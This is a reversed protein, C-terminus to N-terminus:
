FLVGLWNYTGVAGSKTQSHYATEEKLSALGFDALKLNYNKNM